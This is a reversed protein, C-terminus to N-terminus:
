DREFRVRYSKYSSMLTTIPKGSEKAEQKVMKIIRERSQLYNNFYITNRKLTEFLDPANHILFNGLDAFYVIGEDEILDHIQMMFNQEFREGLYKCQYGNLPILNEVGYKPKKVLNRSDLHCWYREDRGIDSVVELKNVGFPRMMELVSSYAKKGGFSLLLHLHAKKFNGKEDLDRDHVPSVLMPVGLDELRDLLGDRDSGVWGGGCSDPYLICKWVRKLADAM